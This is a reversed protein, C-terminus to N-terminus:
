ERTKLVKIMDLRDIRRRVILASLTAAGLVVLSSIAYTNAKIIFPITYLDSEFGQVTAWAFGYGIVWALPIAAIVLMALELLLVHSVEGKTFGLVRLSAFERARESLQIRASNYVVGFAIIVSLVVYVFTMIYINTALTERFKNLSAGQLAIASVAPLGKITEFLKGTQAKDIAMHVGSVVPAEDLMENLARIDMYVALGLYSQIIGAVAIQRTSRRTGISTADLSGQGRSDDLIEIDIMDGRQVHLLNAVRESLLLGSRPLEVPRHDRDLVRSLDAHPPKGTIALKRHYHGNRLRVAVSRYPEAALVGPLHEVEQLVKVPRVETFNLSADQRDAQFYITDIMFEISDVSFLATILLAGSMAIGLVTLASRVPWRVIHRIAMITLQSFHMLRQFKEIGLHGYQTPLPPSMAVAPPLTLAAYIGRGGGLLATAITIGAAIVYIDLGRKFILFPFHFFDAYLRTLGAGLWTGAIVGIAIGAFAICVILKIYHIAISIRAYGLAKLLGIQERELAILRSLTINILFASVLLFIPPIVQAMAKLQKLEADIFAHSLQDKRGHAGTGGYRELIDDLQKIVEAEQTGRLLKLSVSNFAGDLDFMAALAKESMWMVAFRRDDPILDGPGLAYIFEPSLAIGVVTLPRKYGNLIAHFQSGVKFGHAKAFAENITVEDVRGIEPVRGKRLYIRNLKAEKRDPLSLAMGTAPQEMGEIDLLAFESIRAEATAVGSIELIQREVFQPARKATAFVDAFRYREYYAARTEELSRYAGVALILTTVGSAMVLAIALAQAWLRIMDRLLKKDLASM